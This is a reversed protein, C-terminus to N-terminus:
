RARPYVLVGTRAESVPGRHYGVIVDPWGDSDYDAVSLGEPVMGPDLTALRVPADLRPPGSTSRNRQWALDYVVTKRDDLVRYVPLVLDLPGDGDWDVVSPQTHLHDPSGPVAVAAVVEGAAASWAGESMYVPPRARNHSVIVDLWGDGDWDALTTTMRKQLDESEVPVAVRVKPMATFTGNSERRFWYFGPEQDCCNDSGTLLDLRGDGDIDAL